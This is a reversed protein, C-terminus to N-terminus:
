PVSLAMQYILGSGLVNFTCYRDDAVTLTARYRAASRDFEPSNLRCPAEVRVYIERQDYIDTEYFLELTVPDAASMWVKYFDYDDLCSYYPGFPEGVLPVPTAHIPEDNPEGPDAQDCVCNNDECHHAFLCDGDEVCTVCINSQLDCAGPRTWLSAV